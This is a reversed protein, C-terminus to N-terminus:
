KGNILKAIEAAGDPTRALIGMKKNSLWTSETLDVKEEIGLQRVFSIVSETLAVGVIILRRSDVESIRAHM